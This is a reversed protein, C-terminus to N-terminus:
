WTISKELRVRISEKM